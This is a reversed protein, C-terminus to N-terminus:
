LVLALKERVLPWAARGRALRGLPYADLILMVAPLSGAMPKPPPPPAAAGAGLAPPPLPGGPLSGVGAAAAHLALSTAHYGAPNLGWLLHDLGLTAWTLPVWLGLPPTTLM